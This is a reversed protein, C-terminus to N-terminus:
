GYVSQCPTELINHIFVRRFLPSFRWFGGFYWPGKLTLDCLLRRKQCCKLVNWVTETQSQKLSAKKDGEFSVFTALFKTFVGFGISSTEDFTVYCIWPLVLPVVGEQGPWHISEISFNANILLDMESKLFITDKQQPKLFIKPKQLKKLKLRVRKRLM